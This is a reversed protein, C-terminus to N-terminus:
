IRFTKQRIEKQMNQLSEITEPKLTLGTIGSARVRITLVREIDDNISHILKELMEEISM